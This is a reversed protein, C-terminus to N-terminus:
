LRANGRYNGKLLALSTVLKPFGFSNTIPPSLSSPDPSWPVRQYHRNTLAYAQGTTARYRYSVDSRVTPECAWSWGENFESSMFARLVTVGQLATIGTLWDGVQIFWDFVFSFPVLEWAVLAPNTLGLQQLESLHPSTLECWAVAKIKFSRSWFDTSRIAPGGGWPFFEVGADYTKTVEKTATVKFKPPRVVHQQAFFEAAGKVDMLLPLWGYKYELWSNHLKKPTINLNRAIGKLDGRRFARYARDIRRATDYILDSTKHAEAYAVAVNVKADAIKVLAKVQVDNEFGILEPGWLDDVYPKRWYYFSYVENLTRLYSNDYLNVWVQKDYDWGDLAESFRKNEVRLHQDSYSNVPRQDKPVAGFNPTNNWTRVRGEYRLRHEGAMPFWTDESPM